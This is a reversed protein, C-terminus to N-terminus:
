AMFWHPLDIATKTDLELTTAEIRGVLLKRLAARLLIKAFTSPREPVRDALLGLPKLERRFPTARSNATTIPIDRDIAPAMLDSAEITGFCFM